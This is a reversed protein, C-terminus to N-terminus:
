SAKKIVWSATSGHAAIGSMERTNAWDVDVGRPMLQTRQKSTTRSYYDENAYWRECTYDYIFMPYHSGYSYVIYLSDGESWETISAGSTFISKSRNKFQEKKEVCERADYVNATTKM